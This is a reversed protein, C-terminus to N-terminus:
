PERHERLSHQAYPHNLRTLPDIAVPWHNVAILDLEFGMQKCAELLGKSTGGAGCFLDAALIRKPKRRSL